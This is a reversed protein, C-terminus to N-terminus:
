NSPRSPTPYPIGCKKVSVRPAWKASYIAANMSNMHVRAQDTNELLDICATRVGVDRHLQESLLWKHKLIKTWLDVAIEPEIAVGSLELITNTCEEPNLDPSPQDNM